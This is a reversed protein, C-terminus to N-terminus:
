HCPNNGNGPDVPLVDRGLAEPAAEGIRAEAGSILVLEVANEGTSLAIRGACRRSLRGFCRRRLIAM